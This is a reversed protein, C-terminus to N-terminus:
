MWPKKFKDGYMPTILEKAVDYSINWGRGQFVRFVRIDEVPLKMKSAIRELISRVEKPDTLISPMNKQHEEYLKRLVSTTCDEPIHEVVIYRGPMGTKGIFGVKESLNRLYDVTTTSYSSCQPSGGMKLELVSLLQSRSFESCIPKSNVLEVFVNWVTTGKSKM